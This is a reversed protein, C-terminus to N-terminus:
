ECSHAFDPKTQKNQNAATRSNRIILQEMEFVPDRLSAM